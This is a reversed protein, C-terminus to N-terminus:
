AELPVIKDQFPQISQTSFVGDFELLSLRRKEVSRKLLTSLRANHADVRQRSNEIYDRLIKEAREIEQRISSAHGSGEYVISITGASVVAKPPSPLTSLQCRFLDRLGTFFFSKTVRTGSITVKSSFVDNGEVPMDEVNRDPNDFDVRLPDVYADILLSAVIKEDSFELNARNVANRVNNEVAKVQTSLFNSLADEYFSINGAIRAGEETSMVYTCQIPPSRHMTTFRVGFSRIHRSVFNEFRMLSLFM